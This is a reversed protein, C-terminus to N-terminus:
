QSAIKKAEKEIDKFFQGMLLKAVGNMVRQGVSALVGTVKVDASCTLITGTESDELSIGADADIEGPKGTGKVLLRYFSPEDKDVQRVEATFMGKVPGVNIGLESHYVDPEVETFSKCGPLAQQLVEKNQLAKWVEEASVGKFTHSTEIKM